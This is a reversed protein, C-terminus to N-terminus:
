RTKKILVSVSGPRDEVKYGQEDIKKRLEDSKAWEKAARARDREHQLDLVEQPLSENDPLTIGLYDKLMVAITNAAKHLTVPPTTGLASLMDKKLEHLVALAKETNFDDDLAATFRTMVDDLIGTEQVPAGAAVLKQLAEDIGALANAAQQLKDDSFDLPSRYHSNL